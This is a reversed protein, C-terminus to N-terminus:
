KLTINVGFVFSRVVPYNDEWSGSGRTDHKAEPDWGVWDTFTYLNRGSVYATLNELGLKSIMEPRFNYSLTVDKIRLYSADNAYGYGRTNTYALSPRTQSKNESTWYGVEKPTNRRGAEDAYSYDPNNKLMGQATQLFINLSWEKYTFTNTLGGTWKPATQGLIKKDEATIVHDGNLDAFKIDGAKATPDQKSVDEGVQWIGEMVYDYIVSIPHGIFWRNGLDDQKDGYLDVLKNKNAAFIITSRWNFDKSKINHTNLTVEIGHNSTEGMNNYVNEYGTITPLSRKLLIDTTNSKYVDITGMIRNKFIGFDIGINGGTTTEWNLGANGLNDASLGITSIGSFPLRNNSLKTISQYLSIAENGSKGYSARIKLNDLWEFKKMFGENYINWGLAVSPFVGYKSSDKGFVSSGDRRVTVTALYKSDYSYNLRGMQSLANYKDAYSKSTQTAGSGLNNFSLADNVFGQAGATSENFKREQASYLGTFDFHSKGFDKSYTVINEITYSNTESNYISATGLQDNASRGAYKSTRTPIFTYGVNLKYKLGKFIGGFKVEAYGNANVNFSRREVDNGYNLFPTAFLQEPEMPYIKYSGDANYMQGYPSMASAVLLNVRGGDKNHNTLYLSTGITLFDTVNADINSRLGFRKYQYGKLIGKENTYDASVYYKIKEAGGSISLNHDQIIGTQSVADIWDTENGNNYNDLEGYNPVPSDQSEGRQQKYWKFKEIYEDGNRPTLMHAYGEVGAYGSYRIVPKGSTGRKTTILIVGNAGNTGYIAVASADKLIEMSAIDNPSIDNLTGGSKSIPIGDVVIYPGSNANISNQGRVLVSPADGPVSSTQTVTIGAAAGQIAQLVNTVPLDSLREKSISTVSGTIDSKKQVGYGVVVVEELMESNEVMLITLNTQGEVAVVKENYGVFSFVLTSKGSANLSFEGNLDTITGTSTGKVLVSCGILPENTKSDKVVGKIAQNQAMLNLPALLMFVLLVLISKSLKDKRLYVQYM